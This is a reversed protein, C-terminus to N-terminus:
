DNQHHTQRHRRAPNQRLFGSLILGDNRDFRLLGSESAEYKMSQKVESAIVSESWCSKNQRARM